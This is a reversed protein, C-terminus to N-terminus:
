EIVYKEVFINNSLFKEVFVNQFFIPEVFFIGVFFMKVVFTYVTKIFFHKAIYCDVFLTPGFVYKLLIINWLFLQLFMNWYFVSRCFMSTFNKRCFVNRCFIINSLSNWDFSMEAFILRCFYEVMFRERFHEVFVRRCFSKLLFYTWFSINRCFYRLLTSKRISM